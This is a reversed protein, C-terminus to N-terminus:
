TERLIVLLGESSRLAVEVSDALRQRIDSSIVLRDVVAEITHLEYRGLNLPNDGGEKLAERIDVISGNVRARVFGHKQLGELVARHFGKKGRVVPSCVMIRTGAPLEMLSDVIQTASTASIPQGCVHGGPDVHWCTPQGTRAFLLRLYDYIETTTAV